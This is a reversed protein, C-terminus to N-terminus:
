IRHRNNEETRINLNAFDIRGGRAATRRRKRQPSMRRKRQMSFLQQLRKLTKTSQKRRFYHQSKCFQDTRRASCLLAAEAAHEEEEGSTQCVPSRAREHPQADWEAGGRAPMGAHEVERRGADGERGRGRAPPAPPAGAYTNMVRAVGAPAPAAYQNSEGSWFM